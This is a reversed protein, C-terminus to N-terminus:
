GEALIEDLMKSGYSRNLGDARTVLASGDPDVVAEQVYKRPDGPDVVLTRTLGSAFKVTFTPNNLGAQEDTDAIVKLVQEHYAADDQQGELFTRTKALKLKRGDPALRLSQVVSQLKTALRQRHEFATADGQSQLLAIQTQLEVPTVAPKDDLGAKEANLAALAEEAVALELKGAALTDMIFKMDQRPDDLLLMTRDRRIALTRLKEEAAAIRGTVLDLASRDAAANLVSSLDIEKVFMFFSTEFDQYRWGRATCGHRRVAGSCRLYQGGKPGAGKDLFRMPQGCYDCVAVHTFLNKLQKGKRGGGGFGRRRRAAQVRLFTDEDIITPFYNRLPEGDPVRVAGRRRRPQFEGFVARNKLIKEIYSEIWGSSRGFTPISDSNLAKTIFNAGCGAEALEFIRKVIKDRGEVIMFNKKDPSIRLWAPSVSTLKQVEINKRKEDWAAGNRRSKMESEENARSMIMMSYMLQPLETEGAKYVQNDSLTVINIGNETLALFLNMASTVKQRSLRDLSEVLLYSGVPVQGAKVADLFKGLKGTTANDGKFASVGIDHLKFDEVLELGNAAAYRLSLETQRRLSDGRLQESNSMRVYSYAHAM